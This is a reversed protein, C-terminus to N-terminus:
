SCGPPCPTARPSGARIWPRCPLSRRCRGPATGDARRGIGPPQRALVRLEEGHAIRVPGEGVGLGVQGGVAGGPLDQREPVVAGDKQDRRQGDVRHEEQVARQLGTPHDHREVRAPRRLLPELHGAADAPDEHDGVVVDARGQGSVATGVRDDGGIEQAARCGIGPDDHIGLRGREDEERGARGARGLARHEPVARRVARDLDEVRTGAVADRQHSREAELDRRERRRPGARRRGRRDPAALM